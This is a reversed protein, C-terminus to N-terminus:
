GVFKLCVVLLYYGDLSCGRPTRWLHAIASVSQCRGVTVGAIRMALGCGVREKRVAGGIV